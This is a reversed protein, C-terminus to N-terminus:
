EKEIEGGRGEEFEEELSEDVVNKVARERLDKDRSIKRVVELKELVKELPEALQNAEDTILSTHFTELLSKNAESFSSFLLRLFVSVEKKEKEKRIRDKSQLWEKVKETTEKQRNQKLYLMAFRSFNENVVHLNTLEFLVYLTAGYSFKYEEVIFDCLDFVAKIVQRLTILKKKYCEIFAFLKFFYAFLLSSTSVLMVYDVHSHRTEEKSFFTEASSVKEFLSYGWFKKAKLENLYDHYDNGKYGLFRALKLASVNGELLSEIIKKGEYANNKCENLIKSIKEENERLFTLFKKEDGMIRSFTKPSVDLFIAFEKTGVEEKARKFDAMLSLCKEVVLSEKQPAEKAM